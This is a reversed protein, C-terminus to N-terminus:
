YWAQYFVVGGGKVIALANCFPDSDMDCNKCHEIIKALAAEDLYVDVLNDNKPDGFNEIIYDHLNWEKRWYGIETVPDSEDKKPLYTYTMNPRVIGGLLHAKIRLTQKFSALLTRIEKDAGNKDTLDRRKVGQLPAYEDFECIIKAFDNFEEARKAALESVRRHNKGTAYLYMDLGM